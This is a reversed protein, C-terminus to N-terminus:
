SAPQSPSGFSTVINAAFYADVQENTTIRGAVIETQANNLATFTSSVYQIVVSALLTIQAATLRTFSGDPNKWNIDVNPVLQLGLVTQTLMAQSARDTAVSIGNITIGGEEIQKKKSQAYAILLDQKSDTPFPQPVVGSQILREYVGVYEGTVPPISCIVAKGDWIMTGTLGDPNLYIANM